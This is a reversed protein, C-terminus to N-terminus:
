FDLSSGVLYLMGSVNRQCALSGCSGNQIAGGSAVDSTDSHNNREMHYVAEGYFKLGKLVKVGAGLGFYHLQIYGEDNMDGQDTAWQYWGGIQYRDWDYEWGISAGEGPNAKGNPKGNALYVPTAAPYLSKGAYTLGGGITLNERWVVSFGAVGETLDSNAKQGGNVIGVDGAAATAVHCPGPFPAGSCNNLGNKSQGYVGGVALTVDFDKAILEEWTLTTEVINMVRSMYTSPTVQEGLDQNSGAGFSNTSYNGENYPQGDPTYKIDFTFGYDSSSGLFNPSIYRIGMAGKTRMADSGLLAAGADIQGTTVDTWLISEIGTGPGLTQIASGPPGYNVPAM